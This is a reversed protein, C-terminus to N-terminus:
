ITETPVVLDLVALLAKDREIIKMVPFEKNAIKRQIPREANYPATKMIRQNWDESFNAQSTLLNKGEVHAKFHLHIPVGYYYGPYITKFEAIGDADTRLAGRCFRAETDPKVHGFLVIKVIPPLKNPDTSYGSYAGDANCGWIDVVGNPIPQCNEDVLRMAVTLPQGKQGGSIDKGVAPTCTFYPGEFSDNIMECSGDGFDEPVSLRTAIDSLPVDTNTCTQKGRLATRQKVGRNPGVGDIKPNTSCGSASFLGASTFTLFQRRTFKM